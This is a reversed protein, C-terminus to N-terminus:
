ADRAGCRRGTVVLTVNAANKRSFPLSVTNGLPRLATAYRDM